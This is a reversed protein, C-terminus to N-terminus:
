NITTVLYLPRRHDLHKVEMDENTFGIVNTEKLFAQNPRTKTTFCEVRTRSAINLLAEIVVRRKM